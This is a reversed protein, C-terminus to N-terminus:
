LECYPSSPSRKHVQAQHGRMRDCRRYRESRNTGPQSWAQQSKSCRQFAWEGRQQYVKLLMVQGAM